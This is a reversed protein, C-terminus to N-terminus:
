KELILIEVRRNAVREQENMEMKYIKKSSGFGKYSLRNSDIGKYILYEFIHKARNVSLHHDRSDKDFGDLGGTQCCIHGQIEIKINPNKTLINLLAQLEPESQPLRLHRGPYFNINKIILKDGINAADILESLNTQNTEIISIVEEGGKNFTYIIETKRNSNSPKNQVNCFQEGFGRVEDIQNIRIGHNLLYYYVIYARKQSLVQNYKSTAPADTYAKIEIHNPKKDILSNLVEEHELTIAFKNTDFFLKLTDQQCFIPTTLTIALALLLVNKM